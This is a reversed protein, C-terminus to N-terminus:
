LLFISYMSSPISPLSTGINNEARLRFQYDSFPHLGTVNVKYDEKTDPTPRVDSLLMLLHIMFTDIHMHDHKVRSVEHTRSLHIILM